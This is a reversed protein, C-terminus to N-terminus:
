HEQSFELIIPKGKAVLNQFNINEDAELPEIAKVNNDKKEEKSKEDEKKNEVNAMKEQKKATETIKDINEKKNDNFKKAFFVGAVSLFVLALIIVKNKNNM